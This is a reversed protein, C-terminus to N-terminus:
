DSGLILASTPASACSTVLIRRAGEVQNVAEGRLQRVAESIGNMGHIYAEALHGGHTNIPIRGSEVFAPGEGDECLGLQELQMLVLPSFHDYIMAADVDALKM